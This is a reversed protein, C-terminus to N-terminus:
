KQYKETENLENKKRGIGDYVSFSLMIMRQTLIMMSGTVNVVIGGYDMIMRRINVLSLYTMALPFIILHQCSSPFFRIIIWCFSTQIFLHISEKGYMFVAMSVGLIATFLHRLWAATHRPSLAYRMFAAAVFTLAVSVLFNVQDIRLFFKPPLYPLLIRSGTYREALEEELTKEATRFCM